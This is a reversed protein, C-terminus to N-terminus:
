IGHTHDLMIGTKRNRFMLDLPYFELFHVKQMPFVFTHFVSSGNEIDKTISENVSDSGWDLLLTQGSAELFIPDYVFALDSDIHIRLSLEDQSALRYHCSRLRWTVYIVDM